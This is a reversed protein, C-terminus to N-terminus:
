LPRRVCPSIKKLSSPFSLIFCRDSRCSGAETGEPPPISPPHSPPPISLPLSPSISCIMTAIQAVAAEEGVSASHGKLTVMWSGASGGRWRRGHILFSVLVVAAVLLKRNNGSHNEVVPRFVRRGM